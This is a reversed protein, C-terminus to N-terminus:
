YRWIVKAYASREIERPGFEGHQADLLNQGVLSITWHKAISWGLRVDLALYDDIPEFGRGTSAIRDIYRLWVDFEASPSLNLSSRLQLQQEPDFAEGLGDNLDSRGPTVRFEEQLLTYGATLRWRELAQWVAAIELGWIQAEVNNETVFPPTASRSRIDDYDHFFAAASVNLIESTQVRAGLEYASLTESRFNPGGAFIFPATAPFFLDRDIRSPARVARSVAAWLTHQARTHAIRVNPQVEFGTYDNHEFKSGLTVKTRDDALAIEDQVFASFLHQDLVAPLFAISGPLNEVEDHTFRYGAGIVIHQRESLDRQYQADLDFTDLDDGFDGPAFQHTRDYYGQLQLRETSSFSRTWRALLNGGSQALKPAFPQEGHGAYLDGQLTLASEDSASWDLRFGGQTAYWADTAETGDPFVSRDREFYKAYFRYHLAEGNQGGYRIAGTVREFTGAAASALVGQTDSAARTIINIIGNVANAGWLAAGPGSIVEIRDIDELLTDQADWFVGSFLPTYVSRGDILVLLKNAFPASFGRASIAWARANAQAVQLNPALRLAEPISRAGSRRIDEATIVHVAAAAESARQETRSVTTVELDLLEELSLRKLAATSSQALALIPLCFLVCVLAAPGRGVGPESMLRRAHM